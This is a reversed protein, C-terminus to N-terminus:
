RRRARRLDWILLVVGAAALALGWPLRTGRILVPRDVAWGVVTVLLAVAIWVLGRTAPHLRRREDPPASM